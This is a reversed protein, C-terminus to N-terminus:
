RFGFQESGSRSKNLRAENYRINIQDLLLEATERQAECNRVLEINESHELHYSIGVYLCAVILFVSMWVSSGLVSFGACALLGLLIFYRRWERWLFFPTKDFTVLYLCRDGGKHICVPHDVQAYKKTFLRPLAELHGILNECQYPRQVLGPKPTFTVEFKNSKLKRTKVTCARTLHPAIREMVWYAASPSMFGLTYQRLVGSAHSSAAYRGVKRSIDRDGTEQVLREHFREVQLQSFWHGQDELEYSSIRSDALIADIHVQPHFERVYAVYNRILRSNYLPEDSHPSDSARPSDSNM